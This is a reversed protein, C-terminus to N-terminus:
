VLRNTINSVYKLSVILTVGSHCSDKVISVSISTPCYCRSISILPNM